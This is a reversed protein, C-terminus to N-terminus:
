GFTKFTTEVNKQIVKQVSEMETELAKHESDLQKLQLELKKDQGHIREKKLNYEAEAQPLDITDYTDELFVAGDISVDQFGSETETSPMQIVYNGERLNKELADANFLDPDVLYQDKEADTIGDPYRPVIIRGSTGSTLRFGLDDVINNYTLQKGTAINGNEDPGRFLLIRENLKDNYEALAQEGQQSLSLREFAVRQAHFENNSKQGTLMLFRAQSASMGM